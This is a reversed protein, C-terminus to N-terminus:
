ERKGLIRQYILEEFYKESLDSAETQFLGSGYKGLQWDLHREEILVIRLREDGLLSLTGFGDYSEPATTEFAKYTKEVNGIVLKM